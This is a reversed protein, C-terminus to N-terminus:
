KCKPLKTVKLSESCCQAFWSNLILNCGLRFSLMSCSRFYNAVVIAVYNFELMIVVLKIVFLVIWISQLFNLEGRHFSDICNQLIIM